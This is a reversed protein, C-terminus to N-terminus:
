RKIVRLTKVNEGQTVIVNYVGTPYSAGIEQLAVEGIRVKREETLKGLMDYVKITLIDTEDTSFLSLGFHSSFVNPSAVVDFVTTMESMSSESSRSTAPSKIECAEGYPSWSGTTMVAVRVNYDTNAAYVNAPLLGFTFWNSTRDTITTAGTTTNTIEFRYSTVKDMSSTAILTNKTAITKGCFAAILSPVLPTSVQCPSGYGSYNSTATKIAVEVLYTTGYNFSGLMTLAFWNTQRDIVQSVNTNTNTVRFRYGTVGWLSTTSILTSITPLTVGCQSAVVQAAGNASLVAPTSVQCSSGYYGLWVGNRQVMVRVSYTTAYSFNALESLSFYPTTKDITQVATTLVNTVEFRYGSINPLSVAAVLSNIAGLTTGCTGPQIVTTIQFGEDMQGDCNDDVGNYLVEQAGPNVSAVSDDCDTNDIVYGEPQTDAVVFVLPNGYGDGDADAYYTQLIRYVVEFRDTFTGAATTFNYNGAKLNHTVLTLKDKIYIAQNGLFLGDFQSLSLSYDGATSTKFILPLVDSKDFSPRANIVVDKVDAKSYLAVPSDSMYLGDLGNDYGLTADATYAIMKQGLVVGNNNNLKIWIRSIENNTRFFPGTAGIRMSNTFNLNAPNTAKVFFGQGTSIKGNFSENNCGAGSCTIYSSSPGGVGTTRWFWLTGDINTSNATIFDAINISSPYPNGVANYGNGATSLSFQYNGNNPVGKFVGTYKTPSPTVEDFMIMMGKAPIFNYTLVDNSPFVNAYTNGSTNYLYFRHTPTIPSFNRLNQGAVPSSWLTYDYRMMDSSQRNVTINGVNNNVAGSQILNANNELVFSAGSAVTVPGAVTINRGSKVTLTATGNLTIANAAHSFEGLNAVVNNNMVLAGNITTAANFTKTGSGTLTLNNFSLTSPVSQDSGNLSVTSGTVVYSGSTFIATASFTNAVGIIGSNALTVNNAGRAGSITLNGYSLATITQAGTGSYNVTSSAGITNTGFGTPFSSTTGGITFEATGAVEFTASANGSIAFGGNNLRGSQVRLNGKVNDTTIAASLTAGSLSTNNIRLNNYGGNSFFNITQATTGNYNFISTTGSILTSSNSPVTLLGRLNLAGEGGSMDIVKSDAVSTTFNIDNVNLSGTTIAIKALRLTAAGNQTNTGLFNIAGNVTATGDNINWLNVQGNQGPQNLSVENNVLINSGPGQSISNDVTGATYILNNCTLSGGSSMDIFGIKGADGIVVNASVNLISGSSFKLTGNGNGSGGATGLAVSKCTANTVNVTVIHGGKIVVDDVSTPVGSPNWTSAVNWDGTGTAVRTVQGFGDANLFLGLLLFLSLLKFNGFTSKPTEAQRQPVKGNETCCTSFLGLTSLLNKRM